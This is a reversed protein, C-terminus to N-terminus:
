YAPVSAEPQETKRVDVSLVGQEYQPKLQYGLKHLCKLLRQSTLKDVKWNMVCSVQPQNLGLAKAAQEQSLDRDRVISSLVQMLNARLLLEAAEEPKSERGVEFINSYKIGM